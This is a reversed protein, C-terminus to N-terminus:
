KTKNGGALVAYAPSIALAVVILSAILRNSSQLATTAASCSFAREWVHIRARFCGHSHIFGATDHSKPERLTEKKTCQKEAHKL